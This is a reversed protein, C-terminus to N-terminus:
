WTGVLRFISLMGGILVHTKNTAEILLGHGLIVWQLKVLFGPFMVLCPSALIVTNIEEFPYFINLAIM